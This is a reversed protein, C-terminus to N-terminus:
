ATMWDRFFRTHAERLSELSITVGDSLTLGSGEARGLVAVPIGASGAERLLSAPNQTTVIYRAQDEGFWFAADGGPRPPWRSAWRAPWYWRPLRWWCAAM